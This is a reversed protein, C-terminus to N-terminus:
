AAVPAQRTASRRRRPPKPGEGEGYLGIVMHDDDEIFTRARRGRKKITDRVGQQVSAMKVDDPFDRGRELRVAVAGDDVLAKSIDDYQSSSSRKFDYSSLKEM